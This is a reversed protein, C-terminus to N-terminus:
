GALTVKGPCVCEGGVLSSRHLVHGRYTEREPHSASIQSESESLRGIDDLVDEMLHLQVNPVTLAKPDGPLFHFIGFLFLTLLGWGDGLLYLYGIASAVLVM